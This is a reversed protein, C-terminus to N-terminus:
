KETQVFLAGNPHVGADALSTGDGRAFNKRPFNTILSYEAEDLDELTDVFDYVDAITDTSFFRREARSGDPLRIALKSVGETGDRPEDRLELAKTKEVRRSKIAQVRAREADEERMKEEAIIRQEEAVRAREAEERERQAEVERAREADRALSEAFAAEQEERLQRNADVEAARARAGDLSSNQSALAEECAGILGDVDVFGECSMVLSAGSGSVSDLLAVYPYASVNIGNALAQADGDRMSGGWAVFNANVYAGVESSALVQSCFVESEHHLPSHIYVFLLKTERRAFQLADRHSLQMFRIANATGEAYFSEAFWESFERARNESAEDGEVVGATLRRPSATAPAGVARSLLSLPRSLTRYAGTPLAIRLAADVVSVSLRTVARIIGLGVAAAFSLPNRGRTDHSRRAQDRRASVSAESLAHGRRDDRSSGARARHRLGTSENAGERVSPGDSAAGLALEVARQLDWSADSLRGRAVERDDLHLVDCLALVLAERADDEDEDARM